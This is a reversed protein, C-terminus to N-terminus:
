IPKQLSKRQNFRSRKIQRLITGVLWAITDTIRSKKAAAIEAQTLPSKFGVPAITTVPEVSSQSVRIEVKADEQTLQPAQSVEEVGIERLEASIEPRKESTNILDQSSPEVEKSPGGVSPPVPSAIDQNSPAVTPQDAQNKTPDM